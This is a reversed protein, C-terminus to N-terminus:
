KSLRKMLKDFEKKDKEILIFKRGLNRAAKGTTGSGAFPDFIWEGPKTHVEIPIEITREPKQTEHIKGRLIETIDSWVSTRRLYESKAPYKKNYGPYGRKKDLYPVNFLRPKKIDGLVFYALEERIFLYNHQIGYARKKAWTIHNALQWNTELETKVLFQYFPRFKPYGIGGWVYLAGGNMSLEEITKACQILEDIFEDLSTKKDWKKKVINGYPPDTITLPLKGSTKKIFDILKKNPFEDCIVIGDNFKEIIM